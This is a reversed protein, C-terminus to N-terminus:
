KNEGTMDEKIEEGADKIKEETNQLGEKMDEGINETEKEVDEGADEISDPLDPAPSVTQAPTNTVNDNKNRGGCATLLGLVLVTILVVKWKKM